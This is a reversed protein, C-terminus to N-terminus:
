RMRGRVDPSTTRMVGGAEGAGLEETAVVGGLGVGDGVAAGAAGSPTVVIAAALLEAVPVRSVTRPTTVSGGPTTSLSVAIMWSSVAAM